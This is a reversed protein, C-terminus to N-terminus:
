AYILHSYRRKFLYSFRKINGQNGREIFTVYTGQSGTLFEFKTGEPDNDGKIEYATYDLIFRNEKISLEVRANNVLKLVRLIKM